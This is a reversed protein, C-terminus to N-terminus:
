VRHGGGHAKQFLLYYSVHIGKFRNAIDGMGAGSLVDSPLGEVKVSYAYGSAYMQYNFGYDPAPKNELAATYNGDGWFVTM